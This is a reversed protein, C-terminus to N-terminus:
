ELEIAEDWEILMGPIVLVGFRVVELQRPNLSIKFLTVSL